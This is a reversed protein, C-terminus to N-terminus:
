LRIGVQIPEADDAPAPIETEPETAPAVEEVTVSYGFYGAIAILIAVIAGIIKNSKSM